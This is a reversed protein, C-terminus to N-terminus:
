SFLVIVTLLVLLWITEKQKLSRLVKGGIKELTKKLSKKKRSSSVPRKKRPRNEAYTPQMNQKKKVRQKKRKPQKQENMETEEVRILVSADCPDPFDKSQSSWHYKKRLLGSIAVIQQTYVIIM